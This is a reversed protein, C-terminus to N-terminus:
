NEIIGFLNKGYDNQAFKQASLRFNQINILQANFAAEEPSGVLQGQRTQISHVFQSAILLNESTGLDFWANGRSIKQVNLLRKKLYAELLDIIELEGRLSPKIQASLKPADGDFLYLGPIVWNSNPYEPKETLKTVTTGDDDFEVVGYARPDAVRYAFVTSGKNELFLEQLSVGFDPGHFLNDGLIFWFKEGNTFEESIRVGDALGKPSEQILYQIKIGLQMGNELLNEIYSIDRPTSIILVDTVGAHILTSLPYYIIPKDYVPLLQKCVVKTLPMLRTGNGGALIIGKM